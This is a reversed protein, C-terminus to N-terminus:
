LRLMRSFEVCKMDSGLRAQRLPLQTCILMTRLRAIFRLSSLRRTMTQSGHFRCRDRSTSWQLNASVTFGDELLHM